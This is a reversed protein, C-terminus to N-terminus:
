SEKRRIFSSRKADDPYYFQIEGKRWVGLWIMNRSFADHDAASFPRDYSTVVGAYSRDLNELAQKLADASTNGRTQFVVRMMLHVADYTQAAAMLSGLPQAGAHRKLRALFSARRENSLDQIITQVMMAGEVAPGAREPLTRFSLTWPGYLPADFRAQARAEALVAMEAGITYGLIVEAGAARAQQVQETLRRVGLDFRATYVPKLQKEALFKEVDRLGGEGYGTTDAFVAIRTFGRKVIEDVLFAAQLTDRASMRFIYSKDAPYKATVASGTAVPVMLLHKNDQFLDLSKLAVGTNCYGVTFDVKQKLVLDEAQRRGEDPDGKDDRAVLEVQRGLYGGVENIEKVALEAGLRASNGFEQSGGSLPCVFGVRLPQPTQAAALGTLSTLFAALLLRARTM